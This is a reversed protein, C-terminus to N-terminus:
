ESQPLITLATLDDVPEDFSCSGYAVFGDNRMAEIASTSARRNGVQFAEDEFSFAHPEEIALIEAVVDAGEAAFLTGALLNLFGHMTAGAGENYHRVPHHLGATAKFGVRAEHAAVVFAALEDVSPYANAVVGGCRVKAGVGYRRMASMANGLQELYRADRPIEVYAPTGRLGAREVLAAVQGITAEYTDRASPLPPLPVELAEVALSSDRLRGIREFTASAAGFWGRPDAGADVIVSVAIPDEGGAARLEDIRSEPVIFRGLMWAHGRARAAAYQQLSPEMDLKAPPFLGAYDILKTLAAKVSPRVRTSTTM